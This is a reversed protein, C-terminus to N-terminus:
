LNTFQKAIEEESHEVIFKQFDFKTEFSEYLITFDKRFNRLDYEPIHKKITKGDYKKIDFHLIVALKDEIMKHLDINLIESTRTKSIRKYTTDKKINNDILYTYFSTLARSNEYKEFFIYNNFYPSNLIIEYSNSEIGDIDEFKVDMLETIKRVDNTLFIYYPEDNKSKVIKFLGEENLKMGSMRFNKGLISNNLVKM